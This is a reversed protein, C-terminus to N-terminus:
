FISLKLFACSSLLLSARLNGPNGKPSSIGCPFSCVTTIIKAANLGLFIYYFWHKWQSKAAYEKRLLVQKQNRQIVTQNLSYQTSQPSRFRTKVSTVWSRTFVFVRALHCTAQKCLFDIKLNLFFFFCLLLFCVFVLCCEFWDNQDLCHWNNPQLPFQHSLKPVASRRDGIKPKMVSEKWSHKENMGSM